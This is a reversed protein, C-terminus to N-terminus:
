TNEYNTLNYGNFAAVVLAQRLLIKFTAHYIHRTRFANQAVITRLKSTLVPFVFQRFHTYM